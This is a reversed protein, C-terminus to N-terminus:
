VLMLVALLVTFIHTHVVGKVADTDTNAMSGTSAYSKALKRIGHSTIDLPNIASSVFFNKWFNMSCMTVLNLTVVSCEMTRRKKRYRNTYM